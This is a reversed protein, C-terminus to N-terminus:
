KKKKNKEFEEREERIKKAQWDLYELVKWIPHREVDSISGM